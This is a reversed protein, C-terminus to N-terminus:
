MLSKKWFSSNSSIIVAQKIINILEIKEFLSLQERLFSPEVEVNDDILERAFTNAFSNLFGEIFDSDLFVDKALKAESVLLYNNLINLFLIELVNKDWEEIM